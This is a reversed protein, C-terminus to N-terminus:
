SDNYYNNNIKLITFRNLLVKKIISFDGLFMALDIYLNGRFYLYSENTNDISISKNYDELAGIYNGIEEKNLGRYLYYNPDNPNRKIAETLSQISEVYQRLEYNIRGRFYWIDPQEDNIFLKEDLLRIHSILEKKNSEVTNIKTNNPVCSSTTGIVISIIFIKIVNM